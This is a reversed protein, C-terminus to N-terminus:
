HTSYYLAAQREYIDAYKLKKAATKRVKKADPNLRILEGYDAEPQALIIKALEAAAPKRLEETKAATHKLFEPEDMLKLLQAKLEADSEFSLAVGKQRLYELNFKEQAPLNAPILMPVRENIMETSSLGGCKTVAIDTASLYLPIDETYGVNVVTLGEPFKMKAIKKFSKADRGNIIIIQAHRGALSKLVKDFIEFGGKSSGGGFMVTVTFAQEALGIKRRAESKDRSELTRGDVPIGIPLLQREEFGEFLFEDRFDGNPITLLDVGTGAEWFPSNVYDLCSAVTTCPLKYLLKLDTLAIAGYFHTCYIADPKFNLIEETLGNLVSLAAGQSPCSYRREPPYSLYKRYFYDYLGRLRSVAISYGRDAVWENLKTSYSKLIDVTKVEAGGKELEKAVAAACANHGNGAKVTLILVKKM